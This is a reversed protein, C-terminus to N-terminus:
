QMLSMFRVIPRSVIGNHMIQIRFNTNNAVSSNTQNIYIKLFNKVQLLEFNDVVPNFVVKMPGATMDPFFM